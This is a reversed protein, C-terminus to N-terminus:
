NDNPNVCKILIRPARLNQPVANRSNIWSSQGLVFGENLYSLPVMDARLHPELEVDTSTDTLLRLIKEVENRSRGGPLLALWQSLSQIYLVVRIRATNNWYRKGLGKDQGLVANTGLVARLPVSLFSWAGVCPEVEVRMRMLTTLMLKISSYSTRKNAFHISNNSIFESLYATTEDKQSSRIGTIASTIQFFPSGEDKESVLLPSFKKKIEYIWKILGHNLLNVFATPGHNGNIEERLLQEAYVSPLPSHQALLHSSGVAVVFETVSRRKVVKISQIFSPKLAPSNVGKFKIKIKSQVEEPLSQLIKVAQFFNYLEPQKLLAEVGSDKSWDESAM